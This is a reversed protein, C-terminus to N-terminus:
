LLACSISPNSTVSSSMLFIPHCNSTTSLPSSLLRVELPTHITQQLYSIKRAIMIFLDLVNVNQKASTELFPCGITSALELGLYIPVQRLHDLDSKNGILAIFPNDTRFQRITTYLTRSAVWSVLDTISYVLIIADANRIWQGHLVSCEPLGSTDLLRLSLSSDDVVLDSIYFNEITPIYSILFFTKCQQFLLATKGVGSSGLFTVSIFPRAFYPRMSPYCISVARFRFSTM